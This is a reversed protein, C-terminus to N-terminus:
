GESKKNEAGCKGEGCKGEVKKSDDKAGCKGEAKKSDDKAGCKGEAKKGEDKAGCKGEASKSDAQALQYGSELTNASFPNGAALTANSLMALAITASLSLGTKITAKM